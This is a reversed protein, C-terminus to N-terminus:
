VLVAVFFQIIAVPASSTVLDLLSNPSEVTVRAPHSSSTRQIAAVTDNIFRELAVYIDLIPGLNTRVRSIREPLLALWDTAPVIIAAIAINAGALFAVVSILAALQSPVRRRELWELLPVLAIAIVLAATVPLFFIAGAQLAFPLALMLSVGLMLAIAALLRERRYAVPMIAASIQDGLDTQAPNAPSEDGM